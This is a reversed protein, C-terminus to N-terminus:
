REHQTQSKISFMLLDSIMLFNRIIIQYINKPSSSRQAFSMIKIYDSHVLYGLQVQTEPINM